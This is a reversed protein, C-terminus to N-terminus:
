EVIGIIEQLSDIGLREMLAPLAEIDARVRADDAGSVNAFWRGVPITLYAALGPAPMRAIEGSM